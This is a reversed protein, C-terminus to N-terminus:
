TAGLWLMSSYLYVSRARSLLSCLQGLFGELASQLKTAGAHLTILLFPFLLHWITTLFKGAVGTGHATDVTQGSPRTDQPVHQQDHTARHSPWTTLCSSICAATCCRCCVSCRHLAALDQLETATVASSQHQWCQPPQHVSSSCTGATIQPCSHLVLHRGM